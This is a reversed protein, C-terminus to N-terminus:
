KHAPQSAKSHLHDHGVECIEIRDFRGYTEARWLEDKKLQRGIRVEPDDVNGGDTPDGVLSSGQRDNVVGEGRGCQLLWDEQAGVEDDM